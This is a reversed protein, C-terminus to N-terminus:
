NGTRPRGSAPVPAPRAHAANTAGGEFLARAKEQADAQAKMMMDYDFM